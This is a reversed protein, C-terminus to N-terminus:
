PGTVLRVRYFNASATAATDTFTVQSSSANNTALPNWNMLDTSRDVAYKLGVTASYSFQFNGPSIMAPM